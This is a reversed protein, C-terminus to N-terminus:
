GSYKPRRRGDLRERGARRLSTHRRSNFGSAPETTNAWAVSCTASADLVVTAVKVSLSVVSVAPPNVADMLQPSPIVVLPVTVPEFPENETVPPWM